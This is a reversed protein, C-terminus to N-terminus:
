NAREVLWYIVERKNLVIAEGALRDVVAGRKRMKNDARMEPKHQKSPELPRLFHNYATIKCITVM